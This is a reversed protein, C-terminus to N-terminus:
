WMINLRLPEVAKQVIKFFICKEQIFAERVKEVDSMFLLNKADRETAVTHGLVLFHSISHQQFCPACALDGTGLM